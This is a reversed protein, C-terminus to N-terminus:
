DGGPVWETVRWPQFPERPQAAEERRLHPRRRRSLLTDAILALFREVPAPGQPSKAGWGDALGRAAIQLLPAGFPEAAEAKLGGAWSFFSPRRM